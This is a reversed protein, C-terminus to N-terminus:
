SKLEDILGNLETVLVVLEDLADSSRALGETTNYAIANVEDVARHIEESSASQEESATAISAIQASTQDVLGLISELAKGSESALTTAKEVDGATQETIAVSQEAGDQIARIADGVQKTAAMTKEALKRVEDAVVAFGRGSEGARAAEIAANLALLNTQDAIDSIVGLISGIDEAKRGLDAMQERLQGARNSVVEIAGVSQEVVEAGTRSNDMTQNAQASAESANRAVEMVTANMEEMATATENILASQRDAGHTIESVQGALEESAGTIRGVIETLTEAAQLMGERKAEEAAHRATEAEAAAQQAMETQRIAEEEKERIAKMQEELNCVMEEFSAKLTALEGTFNGEAMTCDTDGEGVREAFNEMAKVPQIVLRRIFYSLVLVILVDIILVRAVIRYIASRLEQEMFRTTVFIRVVGIAKDDRLIESEYVQANEIRPDEAKVPEWDDNRVMATMVMEGDAEYVGIAQIARSIMEYRITEGVQETDMDWVPGVLSKGLKESTVRGTQELEESLKQRQKYYDYAGFGALITTVVLVLIFNIRFQLGRGKSAQASTVGSNRAAPSAAPATEGKRTQESKGSDMKM